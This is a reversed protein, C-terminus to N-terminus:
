QKPGKKVTITNAASSKDLKGSSYDRLVSGKVTLEVNAPIGCGACKTLAVDFVMVEDDKLSKITRGYEVMNEKLEQEFKPYLEKVKKDRAEQNLGQLNVTPMSWTKFGEDNSSYVQMHFIVGYDKLREYYINNESSFYTTSLDSRYLRGIISTMLEMDPEKVDVFETNVVKLKALAQDRSLKGQKFAAIDSKMGEVSIHTRKNEKFYWSRNESQNTVVIRENAGLQSIFDGFDLIFDKSAKILKKNYEERASDLSLKRRELTKEYLDLTGTKRPESESRGKAVREEDARPTTIAIVPSREDSYIYANGGISKVGAPAYYPMSYDGPLRFTVGYGEQYHGKVDLGWLTRQNQNQSVEQRVMTALVNEAVELDRTMRTEDIQAFTQTFVMMAVFAGIVIKMKKKMDKIPTM